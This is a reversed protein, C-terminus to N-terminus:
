NRLVFDWRIKVKGDSDVIGRPPNPFPGAKNFAHVAADDLDRAGSEALVQVRVVEGISNLTVLTKTTYEIESALRRGKRYFRTLQDKLTSGWALDLRSRIREFYGYFVYEKTNLLTRESDKMGTVYDHSLQEGSAWDPQQALAEADVAKKIPSVFPLGLQSLIPNVMRQSPMQAGADAMAGPKKAPPSKAVPKPKSAGTNLLSPSKATTQEKVTQTQAGLYANPAAVKSREILTTRRVENKAQSDKLDQNLKQLDKEVFTLVTPEAARKQEYLRHAQQLLVWAFLVLGLHLGLSVGIAKQISVQVAAM